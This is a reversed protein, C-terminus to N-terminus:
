KKGEGERRVIEGTESNIVNGTKKDFKFKPRKDYSCPEVGIKRLNHSMASVAIEYQRKTPKHMYMPSIGNKRCMGVLRMYHRVQHDELESTDDKVKIQTLIAM